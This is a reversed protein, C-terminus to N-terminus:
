EEEDDWTDAWSGRRKSMADGDYEDNSIRLSGELLRGELEINVITTQPILYIKKM